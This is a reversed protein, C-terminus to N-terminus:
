VYIFCIQNKAIFPIQLYTNSFKENMKELTEKLNNEVWTM